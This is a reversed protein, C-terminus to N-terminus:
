VHARGIENEYLGYVGKIFYVSGIIQFLSIIANLSKAFEKAVSDSSMKQIKSYLATSVDSTKSDWCDVNTDSILASSKGKNNSALEGGDVAFCFGTKDGLLSPIILSLSSTYSFILTASLFVVVVGGFGVKTKQDSIEKLLYGGKIFLILGLVYAFLKILYNFGSLLETRNQISKETTTPTSVNAYVEPMFFLLATALFLVLYTKFNKSEIFKLHNISLTM